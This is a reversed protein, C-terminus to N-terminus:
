LSNSEGFNNAVLFSRLKDAVKLDFDPQLREKIYTHESTDPTVAVIARVPNLDIYAMSNLLAEVTLLAQIGKNIFIVIFNITSINTM